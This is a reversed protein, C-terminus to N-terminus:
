ILSSTSYNLRTKKLPYPGSFYRPRCKDSCLKIKDWNRAWKKRYDFSRGCHTCIKSKIVELGKHHWRNKTALM